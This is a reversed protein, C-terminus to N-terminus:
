VGLREKFQKKYSRTIVEEIGNKMVVEMTGNFSAEAHHIRRFNIIASKSIRIFDNGLLAELEYLPKSLLYREKSKSYLVLERGETRIVEIMEPEIVFVKGEAQATIMRQVGENELIKIAEQVAPTLKSIHLVAFPEECNADIQLEVRM